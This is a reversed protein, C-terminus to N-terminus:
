KSCLDKMINNPENLRKLRGPGFAGKNKKLHYMSFGTSRYDGSWSEVHTVVDVDFVDTSVQVIVQEGVKFM